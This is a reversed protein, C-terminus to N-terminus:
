ESTLSITSATNKNSAPYIERTNIHSFKIGSAPVIENNQCNNFIAQPPM